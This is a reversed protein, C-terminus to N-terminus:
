QELDIQIYKQKVLYCLIRDMTIGLFVGDSGKIQHKYDSLSKIKYAIMPTKLVAEVLLFLLLEGYKGENQPNVPGFYIAAKLWPEKDQKKCEEIDAESLVFQKIKQAM